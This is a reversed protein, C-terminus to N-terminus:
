GAAKIFQLRFAPKDHVAAAARDQDHVVAAADEREVVTARVDTEREIPAADLVPDQGAMPMVGTEIEFAAAGEVQPGVVGWGTRDLNAIALDPHLGREAMGIGGRVPTPSKVIAKRV